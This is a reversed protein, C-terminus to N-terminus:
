NTPLHDALGVCHLLKRPYSLTAGKWKHAAATSLRVELSEDTPIETPLQIKLTESQIMGEYFWNLADEVKTKDGYEYNSFAFQIHGNLRFGVPGFVEGGTKGAIEALPPGGLHSRAHTLNELSLVRVAFFRVGSGILIEELAELKLSSKTDEGDSIVFLSDASSPKELLHWGQYVADYLATQGQIDRKSFAEGASMRSLQGLVASNDGSFDIVNRVTDDFTLFALQTNPSMSRVVDGAIDLPLKWHRSDDAKMSASTDLLVVARRPRSDLAISFIQVSKGGVKAVFDQPSIGQIPLSHADRVIIPVSPAICQEEQSPLSSAVALCVVCFAVAKSIWCM